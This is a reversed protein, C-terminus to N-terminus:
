KQRKIRRKKIQIDVSDLRDAIRELSHAIRSMPDSASFTQSPIQTTQINVPASPPPNFVAETVTQPPPPTYTSPPAPYAAEAERQLAQIIRQEDARRRQQVQHQNVLFQKPDINVISPTSGSDTRASNQVKLLESGFLQALQATALNDESIM